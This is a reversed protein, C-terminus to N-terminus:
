LGGVDRKSSSNGEDQPGPETAAATSTRSGSEIRDLQEELAGREQFEMALWAAARLAGGITVPQGYQDTTGLRFNLLKYIDADTLPMDDEPPTPRPAGRRVWGYLQDGPCDTQQLDRHGRLGDGAGGSNRCYDIADRAATLLEPTATGSRSGWLCQVAYWYTNQDTGGNAASRRNLGRGEFVYGHACSLYNYAIDSWGRVDMHYAQIARVKDDCTSHAWPWAWGAGEWHLCVGRPDFPTTSGTGRPRAGWQARTVLRM